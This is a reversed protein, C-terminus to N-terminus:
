QFAGQPAFDDDVWSRKAMRSNESIICVTEPFLKYVARNITAIVPAYSAYKGIPPTSDGLSAADCALLPLDRQDIKRFHLDNIKGHLVSKAVLDRPLLKQAHESFLLDLGTRQANWQFRIDFNLKMDSFPSCISLGKHRRVFKHALPTSELGHLFVASPRAKKASGAPQIKSSVISSLFSALGLAGAVPDAHIHLLRELSTLTELRLRPRKDRLDEALKSADRYIVEDFARYLPYGASLIQCGKYLATVCRNLSKSISFRQASVPLFVVQCHSLLTQEATESWEQLAYPVPISRLAALADGTMAQTNTLIELRVEFGSNQLDALQPAFASLDALGVPYLANDGRGYWAVKIVQTAWLDSHKHNLLRRLTDADYSDFPDGMVHIPLEPTYQRAVDRLVPTSCLIFDADRLFERLWTRFRQTRSDDTQSFYDDFLDVGVIKGSQSAMRAILLAKADYCKSFLYIDHDLKDIDDIPLVEFEHGITQLPDKIRQYRIRAGANKLYKQTPVVVCIRM